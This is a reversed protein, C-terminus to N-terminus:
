CTLATLAYYSPVVLRREASALSVRTPYSDASLTAPAAHGSILLTSLLLVSVIRKMKLIPALM